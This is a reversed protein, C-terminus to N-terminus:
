TNVSRDGVIFYVAVRWTTPGTAGATYELKFDDFQDVAFEETVMTSAAVTTGTETQDWNTGGNSSAYPKLGATASAHSVSYFTVGVKTIGSRALTKKSNTGLMTTSDFLVAVADAAPAAPAALSVKEYHPM